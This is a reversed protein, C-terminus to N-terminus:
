GCRLEMDVTADNSAVNGPSPVVALKCGMGDSLESFTEDYIAHLVLLEEDVAENAVLTSQAQRQKRRAKNGKKGM